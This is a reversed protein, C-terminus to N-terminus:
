ALGAVVAVALVVLWLLAARRILSMAEQIYSNEEALDLLADDNDAPHYRLAGLGTAVLVFHSDELWHGTQEHWQQMADVFSGSLAYSVAVLRAPLWLMIQYLRQAALNFGATDAMERRHLIAALRYLLAGVPGLLVFWFVVAFFRNNAEALSAELMLRTLQGSNDVPDDGLLDRAYLMAAEEDGRRRAEVFAEVEAELDGPGFSYLLVVLAFLFLFFGGLAQLMAALLFVLLLPILVVVAVGASGDAWPKQRLQMVLWDFWGFRRLEAMSGFLRELILSLLITLLTM